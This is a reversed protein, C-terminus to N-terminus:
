RGTNENYGEVPLLLRIRTGHHPRSNIEIRGEHAEIIKKVNSLGLGTGGSRDSFFPEFIKEMNEPHIGVGDDTIEVRIAKKGLRDSLGTEIILHGGGPMATIANLFINLIAQHMKEYNMSIVPIPRAMKNVIRINGDAMRDGLLEICKLIVERIDHNVRNLKVPAAYDLMDELLQDLRRIEGSAIEVRRRDLGIINPNKALVQINTKVASLPNRIEHAMSASLQGISALRAHDMIKREMEKRKSIDSFIGIIASRGQYEILNIKLETPLERGDRHKRNFEIREPVRKGRDHDALAKQAHPLYEQILFQNFAEGSVEDRAYGHMSLFADNTYLVKGDQCLFYGDNIEEVLSKYMSESEKIEAHLRATNLAVAIQSGILTMLNIEDANFHYATRTVVTLVGVIRDASMLPVTLVSGSKEERLLVSMKQSFRYRGDSGQKRTQFFPETIGERYIERGVRKFFDESFTKGGRFVFENENRDLMYIGVGKKGLITFLERVAFDLIETLNLSRSIAGSIRNMASLEINKKTLAGQMREKEELLNELYDAKEKITMGWEPPALGRKRLASLTGIVFECEDHGNAICKTEVSLLNKKGSVNEMFSLLVGSSYHCVPSESHRRNQLFAWAEFTDRCTIVAFGQSFTLERITFDGFGSVSFSNVAERFGTLTRDLLSNQIATSSFTESHGAEFLVRRATNEGAFLMMSLVINVWGGSIDLLCMRAGSVDLWGRTKGPTRSAGKISEM